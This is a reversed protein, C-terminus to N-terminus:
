LRHFTQNCAALIGVVSSMGKIAEATCQPCRVSTSRVQRLTLKARYTQTM